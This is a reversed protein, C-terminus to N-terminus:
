LEWLRNVNYSLRRSEFGPEIGAEGTNSQYPV